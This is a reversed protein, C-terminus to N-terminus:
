LSEREYSELRKQLSVFEHSFTDHAEACREISTLPFMYAALLSLDTVFQEGFSFIGGKEISEAIAGNIDECAELKSLEAADLPEVIGPELEAADMAIQHAEWAVRTEEGILRKVDTGCGALLLSLVVLVAGPVAGLVDGQVARPAVQAPRNFFRGAAITNRPQM